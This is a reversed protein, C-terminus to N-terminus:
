CHRANSSQSTKEYKKVGLIDTVDQGEEVTVTEGQFSVIDVPLALGQSIQGRLKVTRLRHYKTDGDQYRPNGLFEYTPDNPLLSDIEFYVCLDGEKFEGKKVVLDWGDVKACEIADAGEIPEIKSIKRITAQTM